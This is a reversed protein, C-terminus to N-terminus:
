VVRVQMLSNAAGSGTLDKAEEAIAVTQWETVGSGSSGRAQLTGDGASVLEDAIAVNENVKLLANVSSGKRPLIFGGINNASYDDGVANGQLADEQAFMAECRGGQEAHKIANGATNLECLMGPTIAEGCTYEEYQYPGKAHIRTIAM